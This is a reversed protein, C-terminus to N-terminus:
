VVFINHIKTWKWPQVYLPGEFSVLECFILLELIFDVWLLFRVLM